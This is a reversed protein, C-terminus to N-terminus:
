RGIWELVVRRECRECRGLADVHDEREGCLAEHKADTGNSPVRREYAHLVGTTSQLWRVM